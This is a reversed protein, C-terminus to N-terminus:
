QPQVWFSVLTCVSCVQESRSAAVTVISLSQKSTHGGGLEKSDTNWTLVFTTDVNVYRTKKTQTNTQKKYILIQQLASWM